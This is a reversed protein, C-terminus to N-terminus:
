QGAIAKILSIGAFVIVVLAGVFWVVHCIAFPLLTLKEKLTFGDDKPVIEEGNVTIGSVRSGGDAIITVKGEQATIKVSM